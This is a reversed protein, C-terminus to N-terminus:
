AAYRFAVVVAASVLLAGLSVAIWTVLLEKRHVDRTHQQIPAAAQTETKFAMEVREGNVPTGAAEEDAGLPAAAPDFVAVKDATSGRDIADKLREVSGVM